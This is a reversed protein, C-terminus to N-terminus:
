SSEDDALPPLRGIRRSMASEAALRRCECQVLETRWHWEAMFCGDWAMFHPTAILAPLMENCQCYLQVQQQVELELPAGNLLLEVRRLRGNQKLLARLWERRYANWTNGVDEGIMELRLFRLHVLSPFTDFFKLFTHQDHVKLFFSRIKSYRSTEKWSKLFEVCPEAPIAVPTAGEFSLSELTTNNKMAAVFEEREFVPRRPWTELPPLSVFTLDKLFFYDNKRMINISGFVQMNASFPTCSALWAVDVILKFQIASSRNAVAAFFREVVFASQVFRNNRLIYTLSSLMPSQEIYQLLPNLDNDIDDERWSHDFLIKLDTRVDNYEQLMGGLRRAKWSEFEGFDSVAQSDISAVNGRNREFKRRPIQVLRDAPNLRFTSEIDALARVGDPRVINGGLELRQLAWREAVADALVAAGVASINNNQLSLEVLPAKNHKLEDAIIAADADDLDSNNIRV